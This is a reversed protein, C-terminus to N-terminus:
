FVAMEPTTLQMCKVRQKPSCFKNSSLTLLINIRVLKFDLCQLLSRSFHPTHFSLAPQHTWLSRGKRPCYHYQNELQVPQCDICNPFMIFLKFAFIMIDVYLSLPCYTTQNYGYLQRWKYTRFLSRGGAVMWQPGYCMLNSGCGTQVSSSCYWWFELLVEKIQQQQCVRLLDVARTSLEM